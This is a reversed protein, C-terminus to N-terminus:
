GTRTATWVGSGGFSLYQSVSSAFEAFMAIADGSISDCGARTIHLGAHIPSAASGTTNIVPADLSAWEGTLTGQVVPSSASGSITATLGGNDVTHVNVAGPLGVQSLGLGSLTITGTVQNGDSVVMVNGTFAETGGGADPISAQPLNLHMQTTLTAKIPGSYTGAPITTGSSSCDSPSPTSTPSSSTSVSPASSISASVGAQQTATAQTTASQTSSQASKSSSVPNCATAGLAVATVGAAICVLGLRPEYTFRM